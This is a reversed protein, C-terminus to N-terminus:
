LMSLQVFVYTCYMIYLIDSTLALETSKKPISIFSLQKDDHTSIMEHLDSVITLTIM